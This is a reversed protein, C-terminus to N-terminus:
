YEENYDDYDGGDDYNDDYDDTDDDYDDGDDYDDDSDDESPALGMAEVWAATNSDDPAYVKLKPLEELGWSNYTLDPNELTLARLSECAVFAEEYILTVSAPVTIEKLSTCASFAARQIEELNSPLTITKLDGCDMFASEGIITVTDPLTVSTIQYNAEFSHPGIKTVKKGDIEEPVEVVRDKGTYATIVAEGDVVDYDFNESSVIEPVRDTPVEDLGAESAIEELNLTTVAAETESSSGDSIDSTTGVDNCATMAMAASVALTLISIIKKM